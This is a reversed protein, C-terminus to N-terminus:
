IRERKDAPLRSVGTDYRDFEGTECELLMFLFMPKLRDYLIVSSAREGRSAINAWDVLAFARPTQGSMTDTELSAALLWYLPGPAVIGEIDSVPTGAPLAIRFSLSNHLRFGVFFQPACGLPM